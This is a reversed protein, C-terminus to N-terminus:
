FRKPQPAQDCTIVGRICIWPGTIEQGPVFIKTTTDAVLM